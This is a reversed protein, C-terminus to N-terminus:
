KVKLTFKFCVRCNVWYQVWTYFRSINRRATKRRKLRSKFLFTSFHVFFLWLRQTVIILFSFCKPVCSLPAVSSCPYTLFLSCKLLPVTLIQVFVPEAPVPLVFSFPAYLFMSFDGLFLSCHPANLFM